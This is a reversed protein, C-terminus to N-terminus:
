QIYDLPLTQKDQRCAHMLQMVAFVVGIMVGLAAVIGSVANVLSIDLM